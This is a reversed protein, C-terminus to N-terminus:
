LRMELTPDYDPPLRSVQLKGNESVMSGFDSIWVHSYGSRVDNVQDLSVGLFDRPIWVCPRLQRVAPHHFARSVLHDRQELTLADFSTTTSASAEEDPLSHFHRRQNQINHGPSLIETLNQLSRKRRTPIKGINQNGGTATSIGTEQSEDEEPIQELTKAEKGTLQELAMSLPLYKTSKSFIQCLRYHFVITGMLVLVMWGTHILCIMHGTTNKAMIFIGIM